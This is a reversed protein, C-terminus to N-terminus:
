SGDGMDKMAEDKAAAEEDSEYGDPMEDGMDKMAEDKAAGEAASEVGDMEPEGSAEEAPGCGASLALTFLALGLILLKKM